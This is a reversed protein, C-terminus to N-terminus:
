HFANLKVLGGRCYKYCRCEPQSNGNRGRVVKGNYNRIDVIGELIIELSGRLMFYGPERDVERGNAYLTGGIAM